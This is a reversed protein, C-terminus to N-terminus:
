SRNLIKDMVVAVQDDCRNNGFEFRDTVPTLSLLSAKLIAKARHLRV